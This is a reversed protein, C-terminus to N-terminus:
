RPDVSTLEQTVLGSATRIAFEPTSCAVQTLFGVQGIVYNVGGHGPDMQERQRITACGSTFALVLLAVLTRSM